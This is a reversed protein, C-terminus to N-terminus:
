DYFDLTTLTSTTNVLPAIKEDKTLASIHQYVNCKGDLSVPSLTVTKGELINTLEIKRVILEYYEKKGKILELYPTEVLILCVRNFNEKLHNRNDINCEPM